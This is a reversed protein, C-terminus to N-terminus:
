LHLSFGPSVPLSISLFLNVCVTAFFSFTNFPFAPSDRSAAWTLPPSTSFHSALTLLSCFFPHLIGNFPHLAPNTSTHVFSPKLQGQKSQLWHFFQGSKGRKTNRKQYRVLRATVWFVWMKGGWKEGKGRKQHRGQEGHLRPNTLAVKCKDNEKKAPPEKKKKQKM